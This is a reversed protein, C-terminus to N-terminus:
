FKLTLKLESFCSHGEVDDHFILKFASLLSFYLVCATHIIKFFLSSTKNNLCVCCKFHFSAFCSSKLFVYINPFSSPFHPVSFLVWTKEWSFSIWQLCGYVSIFTFFHGLLFYLLPKRLILLTFFISAWLYTINLFLIHTVCTLAMAAEMADWLIAKSYEFYVGVCVCVCVDVHVCITVCQIPKTNFIKLEPLLEM